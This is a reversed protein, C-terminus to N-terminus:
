DILMKVCRRQVCKVCVQNHISICCALQPDEATIELKAVSIFKISQNYHTLFTLQVPYVTFGASIETFWCVPLSSYLVFIDGDTLVCNTYMKYVNTCVHEKYASFKQRHRKHLLFIDTFMSNPCM